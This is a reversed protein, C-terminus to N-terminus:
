GDWGRPRGAQRGALEEELAAARRARFRVRERRETAEHLEAAERRAICLLLRERAQEVQRVTGQELATAEALEAAGRRLAERLRERTAQESALRGAPQRPAPGREERAALAQEAQWLREQLLLERRRGRELQARAAELQRRAEREAFRRLLLITAVTHPAARREPM